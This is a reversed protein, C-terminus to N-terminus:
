GPEPKLGAGQTLEGDIEVTTNVRFTNAGQSSVYIDWSLSGGSQENATTTTPDPNGEITTFFSDLVGDGNIDFIMQKIVDGTEYRRNIVHSQPDTVDEAYACCSLTLLGIWISLISAFRFKLQDRRRKEM